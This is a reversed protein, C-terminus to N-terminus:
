VGSGASSPRSTFPPTMITGSTRSTNSSTVELIMKEWGKKKKKKRKKKAKDVEVAVVEEELKLSEEEERKIQAMKVKEMSAGGTSGGGTFSTSASAPASLPSPINGDLHRYRYRHRQKRGSYKKPNIMGPQLQPAAVGKGRKRRASTTLMINKSKSESESDSRPEPKPKPNSKPKLKLENGHNAPPIPSSMNCHDRCTDTNVGERPLTAPPGGDNDQHDTKRKKVRRSGFLSAQTSSTEHSKVSEDMKRKKTGPPLTSSMDVFLPTAPMSNQRPFPNSASVIHNPAKAPRPTNSGVRHSQNPDDREQRIDGEKLMVGRQKKAGLTQSGNVHTIHKRSPSSAKLEDERTYATPAAREVDRVGGETQSVEGTNEPEFLVRRDPRKSVRMESGPLGSPGYKKGSISSGPLDRDTSRVETISNLWSPSERLTFALAEENSDSNQTSRSAGGTIWNLEDFSKPIHLPDLSSPYSLPAHQSQQEPTMTPLEVIIDTAKNGSSPAFSTPGPKLTDRAAPTRPPEKFKAKSNATGSNPMPSKSRMPPLPQTMSRLTRNEMAESRRPTDCIRGKANKPATRMSASDSSEDSSQNRSDPIEFLQPAPSSGVLVALEQNSPPPSSHITLQRSILVSTSESNTSLLPSDRKPTSAPALNGPLASSANSPKRSLQTREMRIKRESTQHAQEAISAESSNWHDDRAATSPLPVPKREDLSSEGIILRAEVTPGPQEMDEPDDSSESSIEWLETMTEKRVATKEAQALVADSPAEYGPMYSGERPGNIIYGKFPGDSFWVTPGNIEFETGGYRRVWDWPNWWPKREVEPSSPERTQAQKHKGKTSLSKVPSQHSHRQSTTKVTPQKPAVSKVSDSANESSHSSNTVLSIIEADVPIQPRAHRHLEPPSGTNNSSSDLLSIVEAGKPTKDAVRPPRSISATPTTTVLPSRTDGSSSTTLSIVQVDVPAKSPTRPQQLHRASALGPGARSPTPTVPVQGNAERVILLSRPPPRASSSRFSPTRRQQNERKGRFANSKTTSSWTPPDDMESDSPIQYPDRLSNRTYSRCESAREAGDMSKSERAPADIVPKGTGPSDHPGHAARRGAARLQELITSAVGPSKRHSSPGKKVAPKASPTTRPSNVMM